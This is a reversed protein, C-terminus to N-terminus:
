VLRQSDGLERRERGLRLAELGIRVFLPGLLLGWAGFMAVGGLMAVFVVFMPLDLHARRSLAPRVFNDALAAFCGLALVALASGTKGAILLGVTLPAWVLGTGIAPLLAALTTLLGLVLAQPVGIIVYGLTALTGQFLATLGVAILLGRGTEVYAAVLRVTEWRELPSHELLWDYSKRGKILFTYYGYIFVVVGIAANTAATFFRGAVNLAGGGGGVIQQPDIESPSPLAAGESSPAASSLLAELAERIGGSQRVREVLDGAASVLSLGTAVLPALVAVVLLLTIVAAARSSKGLRATLREHFPRTVMALWSAVLLPAWLPVLTLAAAGCALVLGWHFTSRRLSRQENTPAPHGRDLLAPGLSADEAPDM